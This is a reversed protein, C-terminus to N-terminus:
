RSAGPSPPPIAAIAPPQNGSNVRATDRDIGGCSDTATFVVALPACSRTCNAPIAACWRGSAFTAPIAPGCGIVQATVTALNVDTVTVCLNLIQGWTYITPNSPWLVQAPPLDSSNFRCTDRDILGCSDLATFIVM